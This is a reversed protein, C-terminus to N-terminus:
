YVSWGSMVKAFAEGMSAGFRKALREALSPQLTYDIIDEAKILDRAVTDITGFGDALGLQVSKAGTFVMGSFVEPSNALRDGRGQKVADIFQAHVENLMGQMAEKKKPDIPLFPDLMSKNEGAILLRREVGLKKLAETFGFSDLRVGISGVLSAKDVYISDAASAVYYGGSAGVDEIVAIVPKDQHLAKLRKIEDFVIGSQVPSGGPSNVRLIVGAAAENEFAMRLSENLVGASANGESSIVGDVDVLATHRTSPPAGVSASDGWFVGALIVLSVGFTAFRWFLGWRRARRQETLHELLVKEIMENDM